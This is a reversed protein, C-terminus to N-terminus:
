PPAEPPVAGSVPPLGPLPQVLPVDGEVREPLPEHGGTRPVDRLTRIYHVLAGVQPADIFGQYSPMIPRFGLHVKARPDMMSETLYAESAIAVEGGELPITAGYLGAWTPGTHATGDVTHCRLCGAQAAVRQGMAALSLPEAPAQEGVVAPRETTAGALHIPSLGELTRAYDEGGLAIVEGRMTSHGAGCYETCYIPYRGPRTVEFWVSTSRGPVVDQKVRFQPVFFSHVVDRSTMTLEVPQGVPVYLVGNSGAGNPYAFSWMWQKATVYVELSDDPPSHLRVFQRFGIVWWLLFLSLLGGVAAFEVLLAGRTGSRGPSEAGKHERARRSLASGERYRVLFWLTAAAVGTAGLMTVLIVFYHLRDIEGAVTSSQEPLMLLERMLENM